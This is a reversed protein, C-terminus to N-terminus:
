HRPQSECPQTPIDPRPFKRAKALTMTQDDWGYARCLTRLANRAPEHGARPYHLLWWLCSLANDRDDADRISCSPLDPLDYICRLVTDSVCRGVTEDVLRAVAQARAHFAVDTEGRNRRLTRQWPPADHRQRCIVRLVNPAVGPQVNEYPYHLM